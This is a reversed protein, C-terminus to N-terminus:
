KVNTFTVTVPKNLSSSFESLYKEWAAKDPFDGSRDWGAGIYYCVPEGSKVKTLVLHNLEDEAFGSLASRGVVAATGLQGDKTYREWLSLVGGNQDKTAPDASKINKQHKAIGIALALENGRNKFRFTSEVQSLNHGADVTLRKVESVQVGGADWPEYGLEFVTRIPGNALIKCTRWGRSVHLKGGNWIGTGGCGRSKGVEYMDLGEGTDDHYRGKAYWRDIVPGRVRKCWVDIGSSVNQDKGAASTELKPGYTRHAIRDNEWAFDDFREPVHRAFSKSVIQATAETAKEVTFTASKEGSGFDHQFILEDVHAKDDSEFNIVQAPILKGSADRVALRDSSIGPLRSAIETWPVVITEAPRALGMRQTVTLTTKDGGESPLIWAAYILVVSPLITARM